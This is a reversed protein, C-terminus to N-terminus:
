PGLLLRGLVQVLIPGLARLGATDETVWALGLLVVAVAAAAAWRWAPASGGGESHSM